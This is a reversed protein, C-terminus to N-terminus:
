FDGEQPTRLIEQETLTDINAARNHVMTFSTSLFWLRYELVDVDKPSINVM